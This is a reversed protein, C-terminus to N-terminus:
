GSDYLQLLRYRRLMSYVDFLRHDRPLLGPQPSHAPTIPCPPDEPAHLAIVRESITIVEKGPDPTARLPYRDAAAICSQSRIEM